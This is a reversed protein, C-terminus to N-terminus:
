VVVCVAAVGERGKVCAVQELADACWPRGRSGGCCADVRWRNRQGCRKRTRMALVYMPLVGLGGLRILHAVRESSSVWVWWDRLIRSLV